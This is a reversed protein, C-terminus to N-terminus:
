SISKGVMSKNEGKCDENKTELITLYDPHWNVVHYSETHGFRSPRVRDMLVRVYSKYSVGVITGQRGISKKSTFSENVVVRLGKKVDAIKM